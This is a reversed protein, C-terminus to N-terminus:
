EEDNNEAANIENLVLTQLEERYNQVCYRLPIVAVSRQLKTCNDAIPNKKSM